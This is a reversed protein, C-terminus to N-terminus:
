EGDFTQWQTVLAAGTARTLLGNGCGPRCSPAPAAQRRSLWCRWRRRRSSRQLCCRPLPASTGHWLRRCSRCRCGRCHSSCHFPLPLSLCSWLLPCGPTSFWDILTVAQAPHGDPLRRRPNLATSLADAAYPLPVRGELRNSYLSRHTHASTAGTRHWCSGSVVTQKKKM